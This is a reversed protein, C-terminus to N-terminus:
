RQEPDVTHAEAGSGSREHATRRIVRAFLYGAVIMLLPSLVGEWTNRHWYAIDFGAALCVIV